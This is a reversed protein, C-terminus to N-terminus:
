RTRSRCHDPHLRAHRLIGHRPMYLPEDWALESAEAAKGGEHGSRPEVLLRQLTCVHARGGERGGHAHNRAQEHLVGELVEEVKSLDGLVKAVVGHFVEEREVAQVGVRLALVAPAALVLCTDWFGMNKVKLRMMVMEMKRRAVIRDRWALSKGQQGGWETNKEKDMLGAKLGPLSAGPPALRDLAPCYLDFLDLLLIVCGLHGQKEDMGDVGELFSKTM